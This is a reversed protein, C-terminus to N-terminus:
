KCGVPKPGTYAACVAELLSDGQFPKGNILVWPTGEHAPILAATQKANITNIALAKAPHSICATVPAEEIGTEAACKTLM